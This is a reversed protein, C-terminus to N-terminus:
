DTFLTTFAIIALIAALAACGLVIVGWHLRGLYKAIM